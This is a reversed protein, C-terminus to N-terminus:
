PWLVENARARLLSDRQQRMAEAYEEAGSAIEKEVYIRRLQDLTMWAHEPPLDVTRVHPALYATSMPRFDDHLIELTLGRMGDRIILKATM